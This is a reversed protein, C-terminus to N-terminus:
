IKQDWSQKLIMDYPTRIRALKNVKILEMSM